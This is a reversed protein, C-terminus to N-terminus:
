DTTLTPECNRIKGQGRAGSRQVSAPSTTTLARRLASPRRPPFVLHPQLRCVLRRCRSKHNAAHLMATESAASTNTSCAPTQAPPMLRTLRSASTGAYPCDSRTPIPPRASRASPSRKSCKTSVHVNSLLVTRALFGDRSQHIWPLCLLSTRLLLRLLLWLQAPAAIGLSM